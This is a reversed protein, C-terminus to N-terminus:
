CDKVCRNFFGYEFLDVREKISFLKKKQREKQSSIILDQISANRRETIQSPLSHIYLAPTPPPSAPYVPLFGRKSFLFSPQTYFCLPMRTQTATDKKRKKTFKQYSKSESETTPYLFQLHRQNQSSREHHLPIVSLRLRSFSSLYLSPPPYLARAQTPSQNVTPPLPSPLDDM